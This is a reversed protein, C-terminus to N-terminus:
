DSIENCTIQNIPVSTYNQAKEKRHDTENLSSAIEKKSQMVFPLLHSHLREANELTQNIFFANARSFLPIERRYVM